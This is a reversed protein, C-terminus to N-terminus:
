LIEVVIFAGFGIGQEDSKMKRLHLNPCTGKEAPTPIGPGSTQKLM